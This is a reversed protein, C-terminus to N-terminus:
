HCHALLGLVWVWVCVCVCVCLTWCFSPVSGIVAPEVELSSKFPCGLWGPGGQPGRHNDKIGASGVREWRCTLLTSVLSLQSFLVYSSWEETGLHGVPLNHSAGAVNTIHAGVAETVM